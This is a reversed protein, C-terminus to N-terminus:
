CLLTLLHRDRTGRALFAHRSAQVGAECKWICTSPGHTSYCCHRRCFISGLRPVEFTHYLISGFVRQATACCSLVFGCVAAVMWCALRASLTVRLRRSYSVWLCAFGPLDLVFRWSCGVGLTPGVSVGLCFVSGTRLKPLSVAVESLDLPAHCGCVCLYISLHM